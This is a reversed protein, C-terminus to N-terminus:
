REMRTSLIVSSLTREVGKIEGILDIVRDLESISRAAVMVILDFSGSVSYVAQVEPLGSLEATIRNLTKPGITVLIHAKVLDSLYEESLRIGYGRIVGGAELREIRAQVTSRSLGLRRAIAATNERANESLIAILERDKDTVTTKNM